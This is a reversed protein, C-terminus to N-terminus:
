RLILQNLFEFNCGHILFPDPEFPASSMDIGYAKKVECIDVFTGSQVVFKIKEAYGLAIQDEIYQFYVKNKWPKLNGLMIKIDCKLFEDINSVNNTGMDLIIYEYEENYIKGLMEIQVNYYYSVQSIEFYNLSTEKKINKGYSEQLQLFARSRNLELIATRKLLKSTIYNGLMIALHTVGNGKETGLIAVTQLLSREKQIRM